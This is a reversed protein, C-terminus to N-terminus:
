GRQLPVLKYILPLSLFKLEAV